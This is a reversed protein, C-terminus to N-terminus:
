KAEPRGVAVAAPEGERGPLVEGDADGGEAGRGSVVGDGGLYVEILYIYFEIKM